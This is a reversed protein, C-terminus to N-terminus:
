RNNAPPARAPAVPARARRASGASGAAGRPRCRARPWRCCYRARRRALCCSRADVDLGGRRRPMLARSRRRACAARGRKELAVRRALRLRPPPGGCPGARRRRRRRRRRRLRRRRGVACAAHRAGRRARRPPPSPSVARLVRCAFYLPPESPFRMEEVQEAPCAALFKEVLGLQEESIDDAYGGCVKNWADTGASAPAKKPKLDALTLAQPLARWADAAPFATAAM